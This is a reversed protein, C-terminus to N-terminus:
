LRQKHRRGGAAQDTAQVQHQAAADMAPSHQRPVATIMVGLLLAHQSQPPCTKPQPLQAVAGDLSGPVHAVSDHADFWVLSQVRQQPLLLDRYEALVPGAAPESSACLMRAFVCLASHDYLVKGARIIGCHAWRGSDGAARDRCLQSRLGAYIFCVRCGCWVFACPSSLM